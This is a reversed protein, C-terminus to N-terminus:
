EFLVFTLTGNEAQGGSACSAPITAMCTIMFYFFCVCVIGFIFHSFLVFCFLHTRTNKALSIAFFTMTKKITSRNMRNMGNLKHFICEM